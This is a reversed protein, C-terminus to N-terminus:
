WYWNDVYYQQGDRKSTAYHKGHERLDNILYSLIYLGIYLTTNKVKLPLYIQIEMMENIRSSIENSMVNSLHGYIRLLTSLPRGLSTRNISM